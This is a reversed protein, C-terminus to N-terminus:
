FNKSEGQLEPAKSGPGSQQSPPGWPGFGMGFGMGPHWGGWGRWGSGASETQQKLLSYLKDSQEQTLVAKGKEIARVRAIRLGARMKEIERIRREADKQDVKQTNLAARLDRTKTFIDERDARYKKSFEDRAAELKKVQETSLGLDGRLQLALSIFPRSDSLLGFGAGPQRGQFGHHPPGYGFGRWGPHHGGGGPGYQASALGSLSLALAIALALTLTNRRLPTM